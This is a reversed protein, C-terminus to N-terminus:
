WEDYEEIEAPAERMEKLRTRLDRTHGRAPGIEEKKEGKIPGKGFFKMDRDAILALMAADLLDDYVGSNDPAGPYTVEGSDSLSQEFTLMEQLIAKLTFVEPENELVHNTYDVFNRKTYKNTNTGFAREFSHGAASSKAKRWYLLNKRDCKKLEDILHAGYNEEPNIWANNYYRSLSRVPDVMSDPGLKGQIYAVFKRSHRAFVVATSFDGSITGKALDVGICYEEGEEPPFLEYYWGNADARPKALPTGYVYQHTEDNYLPIPSKIVGRFVPDKARQMQKDVKEVPFAMGGAPQFCQIITAPHEQKFM